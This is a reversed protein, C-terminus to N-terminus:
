AWRNPKHWAFLWGGSHCGGRGRLSLSGHGADAQSGKGLAARWGIPGPGDVQAGVQAIHSIEDLQDEGIGHVAAAAGGDALHTEEALQAYRQVQNRAEVLQRQAHAQAIHVDAIALQDAIHRDVRGAIGRSQALGPDQGIDADMGIILTRANGALQQAGADVHDPPPAARADDELDARVILRRNPKILPLAEDALSGPADPPAAAKRVRCIRRRPAHTDPPPPRAIPSGFVGQRLSRAGVAAAAQAPQFRQMGVAKRAGRHFRSQSKSESFLRSRSTM